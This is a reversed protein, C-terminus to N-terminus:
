FNPTPPDCSRFVRVRHCPTSKVFYFSTNGRDDTYERGVERMQKKMRTVLEGKLRDEVTKNGNGRLGRLGGERSERLVGNTVLMTRRVM